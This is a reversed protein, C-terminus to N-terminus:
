RQREKFIFIFILQSANPIAVDTAQAM